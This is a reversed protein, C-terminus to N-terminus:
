WGAAREKRQLWWNADALDGRAMAGDYQRQCFWLMLDRWHRRLM